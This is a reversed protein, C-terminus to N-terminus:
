INQVVFSPHALSFLSVPSPFYTEKLTAWAKDHAMQSQLYLKAASIRCVNEWSYCQEGDSLLQFYLYAM